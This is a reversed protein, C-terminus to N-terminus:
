NDRHAFWSPPEQRLVDEDPGRAQTKDERQDGVEVQMLGLSVREEASGRPGDEEQGLQVNRYREEMQELDELVGDPADDVLV